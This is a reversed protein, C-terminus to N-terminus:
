LQNIYHMRLMCKYCVNHMCYRQRAHLITITNWTCSLSVAHLKNQILFIRFKLMCTQENNCVQSQELASAAPVTRSLKGSFEHQYRSYYRWDPFLTREGSPSWVYSREESQNRKIMERMMLCSSFSPRSRALRYDFTRM